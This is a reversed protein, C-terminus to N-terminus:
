RSRELEDQLARARPDGGSVTVLQRAYGAAEATRGEDRLMTALALLTPGHGPFRDNARRLADLGREPAATSRLAVGLAYHYEPSSPALAAARELEAVASDLQGARVLSLGLAFHLSADDVGSGLAARLAAAADAERGQRALLDALNVHAPAYRPERSLLTRLLAEAEATRGVAALVAAWNLQGDVRDFNLSQAVRYEELGRDLDRRRRETLRERAPLLARASAMRLARSPDSLFRQGIEVAAGPSALALTEVAAVTVLPEDVPQALLQRVTELAPEDLQEALLRVATARAIGPTEDDEIVRKLLASRESSWSRGAALAEAYHFTTQRGNPYWEAVAAAAWEATRGEHCSACANPVGLKVTLDPRPVRFSHDRRSDVVM